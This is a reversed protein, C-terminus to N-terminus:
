LLIAEEPFVWVPKREPVSELWMAILKRPSENKKFYDVEEVKYIGFPSINLYNRRRKNPLSNIEEKSTTPYFIKLKLKISKLDKKSPSTNILVLKNLYKRRIKNKKNM